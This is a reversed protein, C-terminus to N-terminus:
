RGGRLFIFGKFVWLVAVCRRGECRGGWFLVGAMMKGGGGGCVVLGGCAVVGGTDGGGGGGCVQLWRGLASAAQHWGRREVLRWL